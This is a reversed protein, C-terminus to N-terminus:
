WWQCDMLDIIRSWRPPAGHGTTSVRHYPGRQTPRKWWPAMMEAAAKSAAYPNTPDLPSTAEVKRSLLSGLVFCSSSHLHEKQNVLFGFVAAVSDRVRGNQLANGEQQNTKPTENGSHLKQLSFAQWLNHTPKAKMDAEDNYSANEGYVQWLASSRDVDAEKASTWVFSGWRYECPYLALSAAQEGEASGFNRM